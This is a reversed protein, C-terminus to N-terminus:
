LRPISNSFLTVHLLWRWKFSAYGSTRARAYAPVAADFPRSAPTAGFAPEPWRPTAYWWPGHPRSPGNTRGYSTARVHTGYFHTSWSSGPLSKTTCWTPWPTWLPRWASWWTTSPEHVHTAAWAYATRDHSRFGTSSKLKAWVGVNTAPCWLGTSTTWCRVPAWPLYSWCNPLSATSWPRSRPSPRPCPATNTAAWPQHLGQEQRQEGACAWIYRWFPATVQQITSQTLHYLM